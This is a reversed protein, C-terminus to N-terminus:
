GSMIFDKTPYDIPIIFYFCLNEVHGQGKPHVKKTVADEVEFWHTQVCPIVISCGNKAPKIYKWNRKSISLLSVPHETVWRKSAVKTTLTVFISTERLSSYPGTKSGHFVERQTKPFFHFYVQLSLNIEIHKFKKGRYLWFLLLSVLHLAQSPM